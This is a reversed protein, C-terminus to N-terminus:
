TWSRGLLKRKQTQQSWRRGSWRRGRETSRISSWRRGRENNVVVDTAGALTANALAPTVCSGAEGLGPNAPVSVGPQDAAVKMCTGFGTPGGSATGVTQASAPAASAAIVLATAFAVIASYLSFKKRDTRSGHLPPSHM